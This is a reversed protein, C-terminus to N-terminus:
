GEDSRRVVLYAESRLTKRAKYRFMRWFGGPVIINCCGTDGPEAYGECRIRAQNPDPSQRLIDM